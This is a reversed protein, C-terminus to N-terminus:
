RGTSALRDLLSRAIQRFALAAPGASDNVVVPKGSDGSERIEALFPVQGLLTTGLAAAIEAGGGTGFLDHRHGASDIFHSMNEVVGLLPVNVKRFMLGGRRAVNTAALQPTTVLLAGDLPLTQVLSLQADGTGPPMDVLLVELDGWRVNQVFQQVTKMIMPGRWIVATDADILFGMSMVKVGHNEMPLLMADAGDGEIGPRGSLGMMLPVTPGYIDCDMLGVRGTQGQEALVQALACALNVAFTSKGVGGKGSAIAVSHKIGKPASGGALNSGAGSTAAAVAIDVIAKKVGPLSRLVKEVELKLATPVKPDSTTLVLAVKATGDILEASRVIGFSVIDRSFGPYKV